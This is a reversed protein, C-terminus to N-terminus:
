LNRFFLSVEDLNLSRFDKSEDDNESPSASSTLLIAINFASLSYKEVMKAVMELFDEWIEEEDIGLIFIINIFLWM